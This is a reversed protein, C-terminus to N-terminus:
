AFVPLTGRDAVDLVRRLFGPQASTLSQRIRSKEYRRGIAVPRIANEALNNSLEIQGYDLFRRLQGWRGLSYDCAKGLASRPLASARASEVRGKLADIIPEAKQRRLELREASNLGLAKADAELEFLKDIEAVVGLAVLDKGNLQV